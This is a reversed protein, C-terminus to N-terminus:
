YLIKFNKLNDENVKIKIITNYQARYKGDFLAFEEDSTSLFRRSYVKM